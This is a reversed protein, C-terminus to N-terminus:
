KFSKSIPELVKSLPIQEPLQVKRIANRGKLAEESVSFLGNWVKEAQGGATGAYLTIEHNGAELLQLNLPGHSGKFMIAKSVQVHAALYVPSFPEVVQSWDFKNEAFQQFSEQGAVIFLASLDWNGKPFSIRVDLRDISGGIEGENAFTLWFVTTFSGPKQLNITYTFTGATIKTKFPSRWFKSAVPHIFFSVLLALLTGGLIQRVV